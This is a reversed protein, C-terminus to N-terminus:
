PELLARLPLKTSARAPEISPSAPLASFGCGRDARRRIAHGSMAERPRDRAVTSSIVGGGPVWFIVTVDQVVYRARPEADPSATMAAISASQGYVIPVALIEERSDYTIEFWM